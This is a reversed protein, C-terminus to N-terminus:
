IAAYLIFLQEISLKDILRQNEHNKHSPKPSWPLGDIVIEVTKLRKKHPADYRYMVCELKDGYQTVLKKTGRDGPHLTLGVKM